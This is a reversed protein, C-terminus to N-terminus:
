DNGSESFNNAGFQNPRRPSQEAKEQANTKHGHCKNSTKNRRERHGHNEVNTERKNDDVQNEHRESSSRELLLM